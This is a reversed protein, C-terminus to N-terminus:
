SLEEPVKKFRLFKYIENYQSIKDLVGTNDEIFYWYCYDLKLHDFFKILDLDLLIPTLKEKATEVQEQNFNRIFDECAVCSLVSCDCYESKKFHQCLRYILVIKTLEKELDTVNFLDEVFVKNLESQYCEYSTVKVLGYEFTGDHGCLFYFNSPESREIVREVFDELFRQCM